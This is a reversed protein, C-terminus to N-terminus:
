SPVNKLADGLKRNEERLGVTVRIWDPSDFASGARVIIGVRLLAAAVAEGDGVKVFIFNAQSEIYGLGLKQFTAYLQQRGERVATVAQHRHGDDKLAAAAGAQALRNVNFPERTRNMYDIVEKPGIGYGVRLGALGYIKSFTRLVVVPYRDLFELSDPYEPHEVFDGYAEDLLVLIGEPLDGLFRALEAKGIITGTPNNPNCLFVLKTKESVKFRVDDLDARWNKLPSVVVKAGMVRSVHAYQSFSPQIIIVEEGENIFTRALVSLVDDGGNGMFIQEFRVELKEALLKRLSIASGDPYRHLDDLASRVAELAAPSPGLANENSALKVVGSIGYERSVDEISRGPVYAKLDVVGRRLLKKM